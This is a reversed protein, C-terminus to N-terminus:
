LYDYTNVLILNESANILERLVQLHGAGYIIFIRNSNRALKQINSFIKLNREYWKAVMMSGNYEENRNISNAALYVDHNLKSWEHTNYYKYLEKLSDNNHKAMDLGLIDMSEKLEDTPNDFISMDLLTDDDIAYIKKLEVMKGLRYGIQIAENNYTILCQQGFMTITGLDKTEMIERKLLDSTQFKDYSEDVIQQQHFAAEVAITEPKFLALKQSIEELEEQIEPSYFDFNSERFHFTGLLLIETM